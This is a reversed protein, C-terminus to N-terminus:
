TINPKLNCAWALVGLDPDEECWIFAQDIRNLNLGNRPVTHEEVVVGNQKAYGISQQLQSYVVRQIQRFPQGPAVTAAFGPGFSSWPVEM